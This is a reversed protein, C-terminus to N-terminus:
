RKIKVFKQFYMNSPVTIKYKKDELVIFMLTINIVKGKIGEPLIEISDGIRVRRSTILITSALLNSLVSWVAVFGIAVLGAISTAYIWLNELNVGWVSIVALLTLIAVLPTVLKRLPTKKTFKPMYREVHRNILWRLLAHLILGLALVVITALVRFEVVMDLEFPQHKILM